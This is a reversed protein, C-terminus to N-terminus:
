TLRLAQYKFKRPVDNSPQPAPTRCLALRSKEHLLVGCNESAPWNLRSVFGLTRPSPVDAPHLVGYYNYFNGIGAINYLREVSNFSKALPM